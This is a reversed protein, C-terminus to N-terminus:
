VGLFVFLHPFLSVYKQNMPASTHEENLALMPVDTHCQM